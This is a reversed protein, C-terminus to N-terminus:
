SQTVATRTCGMNVRHEVFSKISSSDLKVKGPLDRKIKYIDGFNNLVVIVKNISNCNSIFLTSVDVFQSLKLEKGFINIGQIEKDQRTKCAHLEM